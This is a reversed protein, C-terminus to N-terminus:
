NTKKNKSYHQMVWLLSGTCWWLFSYFLTSPLAISWWSPTATNMEIVFPLLAGVVFYSILWVASVIGVFIQVFIFFSSDSSRDTFYQALFFLILSLVTGFLLGILAYKIQNKKPPFILKM